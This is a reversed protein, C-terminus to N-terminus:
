NCITKETEKDFLHIRNLDIGVKIVDGPRAMSRAAVRATFYFGECNLYLYTEAGMMETVDVNCDIIGDTATSLFMEEDHMNEPRIGMVIEKGIYDKMNEKGNKRSVARTELDTPVM